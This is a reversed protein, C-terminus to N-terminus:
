ACLLRPARPWWSSTGGGGGKKSAHAGQEMEPLLSMGKTIDACPTQKSRKYRSTGQVPRVPQRGRTSRFGPHCNWTLDVTLFLAQLLCLVFKYPTRAHVPFRTRLPLSNPAPPLPAARRGAPGSLPPPSATGGGTESAPVMPEATDMIHELLLLMTDCGAGGGCDSYQWWQRPTM